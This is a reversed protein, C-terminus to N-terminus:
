PHVSIHGFTHKLLTVESAPTNATPKINRNPIPYNDAHYHSIGQLFKDAISLRFFTPSSNYNERLTFANQLSFILHFSFLIKQFLELPLFEKPFSKFFPTILFPSPCLVIEKFYRRNTLSINSTEELFLIFILVM